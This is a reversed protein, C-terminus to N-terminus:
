INHWFRRQVPLFRKLVYGIKKKDARAAIENIDTVTQGTLELLVAHISETLANLHYGGELTLVLKGACCTEAINMVVRTMAAFGAASMCMGGVQDEAHTDFGASVIILDPQFELAMPRLLQELFFVYEGDGYGKPLPINATYGEGPGRGTEMFFGTGPFHPNQHISFFLVAPDQEFVHQTGNGHHVDWDILLVRQLGLVKRAYMAGLAINNLLCYGMARNTEAHHGPPRVLAFANALDGTVVAAIAELMGGVALHAAACSGASVHTDATLACTEGGATTNLLDLYEPAHVLLIEDRTAPRPSINILRDKFDLTDLLDYVAALREPSEPHGPAPCHELYANDRVIGTKHSKTEIM